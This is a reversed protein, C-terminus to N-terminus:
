NVYPRSISINNEVEKIGPAAWAVAEADKKEAWSRVKGTLIAKRERVLVHISAADLTAHRHFAANIDEMITLPDCPGDRLAIYNNVGRVGAVSRVYTEAAQRQYNWRLTGELTVFGDDVSVDLAEADLVSLHKLSEKIAGAIDGDSRKKKGGIRVEVDMAVFSVGKVRQAAAEVAHKQIFSDVQGSLTIIGEKSSVGIQSAIGSLSPDWRIEEMVDHQLHIDDKM